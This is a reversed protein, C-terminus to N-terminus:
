SLRASEAYHLSMHPGKEVFFRSFKPLSSSEGHTEASKSGEQLGSDTFIHVTATLLQM